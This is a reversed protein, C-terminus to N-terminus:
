VRAQRVRFFGLACLGLGILSMSIPEPVASTVALHLINSTNSGTITRTDTLALNENCNKCDNAYTSTNATLTDAASFALTLNSGALLPLSFGNAFLDYGTLNTGSVTKTVAGSTITVTVAGLAGGFVPTYFAVGTPTFAPSGIQVNFDLIARPM